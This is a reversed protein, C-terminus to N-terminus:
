APHAISGRFSLAASASVTQGTSPLMHPAAIRPASARGLDSVGDRMFPFRRFRPYRMGARLRRPPGPGRRSARLLARRRHVPTLLRVPAYYRHLGRVFGAPDAASLTSPLRGSSPLMFPLGTGSGSGSLAPRTGGGHGFRLQIPRGFGSHRDAVVRSLLGSRSLRVAPDTRPSRPM